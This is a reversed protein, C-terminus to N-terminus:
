YLFSSALDIATYYYHPLLKGKKSNWYGEGRGKYIGGDIQVRSSGFLV